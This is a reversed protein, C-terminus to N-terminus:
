QEWTKLFPQSLEGLRRHHAGVLVPASYAQLRLKTESSAESLVQLVRIAQCAEHPRKESNNVEKWLSTLFHEDCLLLLSDGVCTRLCQELQNNKCLSELCNAVVTLAARHMHCENAHGMIITDEADDKTTQVLAMLVHWLKDNGLIMEAAHPARASIQALSELALLQADLSGQQMLSVALDIGEQTNSRQEHESVRPICAPLPLPPKTVVTAPLGKARRLVCKAVQHFSFSCGCLRQAEVLITSSADETQFFRVMFEVHDETECAITAEKMDYRTAVSEDSLTGSVRSMVQEPTADQIRVHTRELFSDVPLAPFRTM